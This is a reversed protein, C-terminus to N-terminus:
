QLLARLDSAIRDPPVGFQYRAIWRGELNLLFSGATHNVMYGGSTDEDGAEFSLGLPAGMARVIEEDGTLAIIDDFQRLDFYESLAEPTDRGADISIFVFQIMAAENGLLKQIQQFDSLTLPCIDPCHTFGFTLLVFRGQFDSPGLPEGDSNTLTFEPLDIPPNITIVGDYALSDDVQFNNTEFAESERPRDYLLFVALASIGILMAALLSYLALDIWTAKGYIKM